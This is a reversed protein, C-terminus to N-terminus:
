ALGTVSASPDLLVEREIDTLPYTLLAAYNMLAIEIRGQVDPVFCETQYRVNRYHSRRSSFVGTSRSASARSADLTFSGANFCTRLHRLYTKGCKLFCSSAISMSRSIALMCPAVASGRLFPSNIKESGQSPRTNPIAM